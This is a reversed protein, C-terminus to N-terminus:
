IESWVWLNILSPQTANYGSILYSALVVTKNAPTTTNCEETDCVKIKFDTIPPLCEEIKNELETVDYLAYYSLYGVNDLNDLCNYGVQLLQTEPVTPQYSYLLVVIMLILIAGISAELTQIFGKM